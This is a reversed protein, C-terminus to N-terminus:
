VYFSNSLFCGTYKLFFKQLLNKKWSALAKELYFRIELPFNRFCPSSTFNGRRQSYKSRLDDQLPPESIGRAEHQEFCHFQCSHKEESVISLFSCHVRVLRLITNPKIFSLYHYSHIKRTPSLLKIYYKNIKKM